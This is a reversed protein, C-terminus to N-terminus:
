RTPGIWTASGWGPGAQHDWADAVIAVPWGQARCWSCTLRLLGDARGVTPQHTM